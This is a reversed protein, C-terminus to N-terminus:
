KKTIVKRLLHFLSYEAKEYIFECVKYMCTADLPYGQHIVMKSFLFFGFIEKCDSPGSLQLPEGLLHDYTFSHLFVLCIPLILRLSIFYTIEIM